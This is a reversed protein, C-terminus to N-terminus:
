RSTVLAESVPGRRDARSNIARRAFVQEIRFGRYLRRVAPTDSNSLVVHVGRRALRAFLEALAEQAAVGFGDRAYATFSATSSLPVYPPDFYVLDGREAREEVRAVDEVRLEANRLAEAAAYLNEPNCITPNAYRGFPVNFQGASNVRYLGNYCTRNLYITRAAQALEGLSGANQARLAYFHDRDARRAALDAILARVDDRVVRYTTILESNIDSLVARPPMLAFFVAGGGLFPEHYLGFRSPFRALIQPTLRGKGGAWKLFPRPRSGDGPQLELARM